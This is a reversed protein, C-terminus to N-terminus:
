KLGGEILRLEPRNLEGRFALVEYNLLVELKDITDPSWLSGSLLKELTTHHQSHYECNVFANLTSNAIGLQKAAKRQSIGWKTLDDSVAKSASRLKELRTSM